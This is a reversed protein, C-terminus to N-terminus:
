ENIKDIIQNVTEKLSKLDRKLREITEDQIKVQRELASIKSTSRKDPVQTPQVTIKPASGNEKYQKM